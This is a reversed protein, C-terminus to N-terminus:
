LECCRGEIGGGNWPGNKTMRIDDGQAIPEGCWCKGDYRATFWPGPDGWEAPASFPEAARRPKCLDCQGILLEHICREDM